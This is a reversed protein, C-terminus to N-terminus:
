SLRVVGTFDSPFDLRVEAGPTTYTLLPHHTDGNTHLAEVGAPDFGLEHTIIAVTTPDNVSYLFGLAIFGGGGAPPLQGAPVKGDLGLTATGGPVGLEARTLYLSPNLTVPNLTDPDVQHADAEIVTTPDPPSPVDVYISSSRWVRIKTAVGYGATPPLRLEWNGENDTVTSDVGGTIPPVAAGLPWLAATVLRGTIPDGSEPDVAVGHVRTM